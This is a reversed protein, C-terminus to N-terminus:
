HLIHLSTCHLHMIQAVKSYGLKVMEVVGLNDCHVIVRSHSFEEPWESCVLVIPLLDKFAISEDKLHVEDAM